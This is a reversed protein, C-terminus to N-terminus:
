FEKVLNKFNRSLICHLIYTRLKKTHKTHKLSCPNGEMYSTKERLWHKSYLHIIIERSLCLLWRIGDQTIVKCIERHLAFCFHWMAVSFLKSYVSAVPHIALQDFRNIDHLFLKDYPRTLFNCATMFNHTDLMSEM